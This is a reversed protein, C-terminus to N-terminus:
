DHYLNEDEKNLSSFSCWKESQGIM